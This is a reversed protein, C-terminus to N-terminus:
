NRWVFSVDTVRTGIVVKALLTELVSRRYPVAIATITARQGAATWAQGEIDEALLAATRCGLPCKYTRRRPDGIARNPRMLVDCSGCWILNRLLYPDDSAVM